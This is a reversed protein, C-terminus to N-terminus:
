VRGGGAGKALVNVIAGAGERVARHAAFVGAASATIQQTLQHITPAAIPAPTLPDSVARLPIAGLGTRQVLTLTDQLYAVLETYKVTPM